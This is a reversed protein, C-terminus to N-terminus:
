LKSLRLHAVYDVPQEVDISPYPDLQLLTLRYGLTDGHEHALTDEMFVYGGIGIELRVTDPALGYLWLGIIARGAWICAVEPELGCRSENIARDFGIELSDPGVRKSEGYALVVSEDLAGTPDPEEECSPWLMLLIILLSKM